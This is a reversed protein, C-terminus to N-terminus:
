VFVKNWKKLLCIQEVLDVLKVLNELEVGEVVELLLELLEVLEVGRLIDVVEVGWSIDLTQVIARQFVVESSEKEEM